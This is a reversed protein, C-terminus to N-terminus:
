CDFKKKHTLKKAIEKGQTILRILVHVKMCNIIASNSTAERHSNNQFPTIQFKWLMQFFLASGSIFM